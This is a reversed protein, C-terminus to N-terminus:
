REEGDKGGQKLLIEKLQKRARFLRTGVTVSPIGLRKSIEAYSLGEKDKLEMVARLEEPLEDVARWVDDMTYADWPEAPGAEEMAPGLAETFEQHPYRKDHRYLDLFRRILIAAL